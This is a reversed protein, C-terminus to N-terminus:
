FFLSRFADIVIKKHRQTLKDLKAEPIHVFYTTLWKFDSCIKTTNKSNICTQHKGDSFDQSLLIVRKEDKKKSDDM